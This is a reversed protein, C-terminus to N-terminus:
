KEEEEKDPKSGRKVLASFQVYLSLNQSLGSVTSSVDKVGARANTRSWVKEDDNKSIACSKLFKPRPYPEQCHCQNAVWPSPSPSFANERTKSFTKGFFFTYSM